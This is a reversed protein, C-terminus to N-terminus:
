VRKLVARYERWILLAVILDVITLAMMWVSGTVFFRYTQYIIFAAMFWLSLPYSWLRQSLLGAVLLVKILGHVILYAGAFLKNHTTLHEVSRQLFLATHAGPKKMLEPATLFIVFRILGTQPIWFLLSGGITELLGAIGKTWVGLLFFAHEIKRQRGTSNRSDM